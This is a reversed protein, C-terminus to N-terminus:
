AKVGYLQFSSYQVLNSSTFLLSLSTIASTSMWQSSAHYLEGSGNADWGCFSRMTKYKDTSTYDLIDAVLAGFIGSSQSAAPASPMIYLYTNSTYANAQTSAGSGGMNHASYNTGSDGNARMIFGAATSALSSRVIGRIQLHKYTSPISSFTISSTGASPVVVSQIPVYPSTAATPTVASSASSEPGTATANTGKVKFVYSTGNTLGTVTIPSSASTGTISGPTSTATFTTVTGGTAAATFAVSVQGGAVLDTVAGITPADPVDPIPTVGPMVSKQSVKNIITM